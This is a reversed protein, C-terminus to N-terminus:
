QVEFDIYENQEIRFTSNDKYHLILDGSVEYEVSKLQSEFTFQKGDIRTILLKMNLGGHSHRNAIGQYSPNSINFLNLKM